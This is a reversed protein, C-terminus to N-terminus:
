VSHMLTEKKREVFTETDWALWKRVKKGISGLMIPNIIPDPHPKHVTVSLLGDAQDRFTVASGGRQTVTMGADVMAAVM